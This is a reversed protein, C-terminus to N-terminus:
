SQAAVSRLQRDLGTRVSDSMTTAAEVIQEAKCEEALYVLAESLVMMCTARARDTEPLKVHHDEVHILVDNGDSITLKM